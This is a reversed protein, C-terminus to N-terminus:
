PSNILSRIAVIAKKSPRGRQKVIHTGVAEVDRINVGARLYRYLSRCTLQYKAVLTELEDPSIYYKAAV